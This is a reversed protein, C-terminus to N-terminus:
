HIQRLNQRLLALKQFGGQPRAHFDTKLQPGSLRPLTLQATARIQRVRRIIRPIGLPPRHHKQRLQIQIIHRRQRIKRVSSQQLKKDTVILKVTQLFLALHAIQSFILAILGPQQRFIRKLRIILPILGKILSARHNKARVFLWYGRLAFSKTLAKKFLHAILLPVRKILNTIGITAPHATIRNKHLM